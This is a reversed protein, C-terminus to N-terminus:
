QQVAVLLFNSSRRLLERYRTWLHDATPLIRRSSKLAIPTKLGMTVAKFIAASIVARPDFPERRLSQQSIKTVQVVIKSLRKTLSGVTYFPQLYSFSGAAIILRMSRGGSYSTEEPRTFSLANIWSMRDIPLTAFADSVDLSFAPQESSDAVHDCSRPM